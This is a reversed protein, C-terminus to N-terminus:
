EEVPTEPAGGSPPRESAGGRRGRGGRGRRRRGTPREARGAAAPRAGRRAEAPLGTTEPVAMSSSLFIRRETAPIDGKYIWVKVGITGYITYAVAFGYDIDARLTQLPVRGWRDWETRAIEAGGLRGSVMVKVGRWNMRKARAIVQRILRRHSVRRELQSAINEAILQADQEPNRVDVVDIRLEPKSPYIAKYIAKTIEEIGQGGRGIIQGPRAANIIVRVINAAREIEIRSIGASYWGEKITRRILYDEYVFHRYLKKPAYWRSDWDRTIGVRFGIPHIKQGM